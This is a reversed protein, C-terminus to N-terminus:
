KATKNLYTMAAQEMKDTRKELDTIDKKILEDKNRLENIEIKVENFGDHIATKNSYYSAFATSLCSLVVVVTQSKFTTKEISTM